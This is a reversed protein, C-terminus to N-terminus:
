RYRKGIPYVPTKGFDHDQRANGLLVSATLATALEEETYECVALYNEDSRLGRVQLDTMFGEDVEFTTVAMRTPAVFAVLVRGGDRYAKNLSDDM